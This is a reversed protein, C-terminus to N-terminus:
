PKARIFGIAEKKAEADVALEYECFTNEKYAGQEFYSVSYTARKDRISIGTIVGHYDSDLLSVRTGCPYVKLSEQHMAIKARQEASERDKACLASYVKNCENVAEIYAKRLNALEAAAKPSTGAVDDLDLEASM